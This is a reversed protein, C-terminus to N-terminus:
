PAATLAIQYRIGRLMVYLADTAAGPAGAVVTDAPVTLALGASGGAVLGTTASSGIAISDDVLANAGSGLASCRVGAAQAGTGLAVAYQGGAYTTSVGDAAGLACSAGGVAQTSYGFAAGGQGAVCLIGCAVTYEAPVSNWTGVNLASPFSNGGNESAVAATQTYVLWGSAGDSEVGLTHGPSVFHQQTPSLAGSLIINFFGTQQSVFVFQKGPLTSSALPLTFVVDNAGTVLQYKADTATLPVTQGAAVTVATQEPIGLGNSAATVRGNVDVTVTANTYTDPTVGTNTLAITGTTSIPGGTLGAGTNIETVTGPIVNTPAVLNATQGILNRYNRVSGDLYSM